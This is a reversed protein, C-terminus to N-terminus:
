SAFRGPLEVWGQGSQDTALMCLASAAVCFCSDLNLVAQPLRSEETTGHELQEAYRRQRDPLARTHQETQHRKTQSAGCRAAVAPATAAGVGGRGRFARIAHYLRASASAVCRMRSLRHFSSRCCFRPMRRALAAARHITLVYMYMSSSCATRLRSCMAPAPHPLFGAAANNRKVSCVVCQYHLGARSLWQSDAM